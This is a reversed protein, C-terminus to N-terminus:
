FVRIGRGAGDGKFRDAPQEGYREAALGVIDAITASGTGHSTTSEQM